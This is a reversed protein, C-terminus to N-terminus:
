RHVPIVPVVVTRGSVTGKRSKGKIGKIGRIGKDRQYRGLLPLLTHGPLLLDEQRPV